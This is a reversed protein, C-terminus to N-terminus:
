GGPGTPEIAIRSQLGGQNKKKKKKKAAAGKPGEVAIKKKVPM